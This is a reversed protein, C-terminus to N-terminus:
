ASLMALIEDRTFLRGQGIGPCARRTREWADASRLCDRWFPFTRCQRPRVDYARCATGERLVCDGDERERLSLGGEIPRCRRTVFADPAEGLQAALARVEEPTVRVIGPAGTCCAGCRTCGFRLGADFFYARDAPSPEM